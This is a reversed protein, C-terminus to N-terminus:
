LVLSDEQDKQQQTLLFHYLIVVLGQFVRSKQTTSKVIEWFNIIPPDLYPRPHSFNAFIMLWGGQMQLM